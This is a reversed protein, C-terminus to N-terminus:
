FFTDCNSNLILRILTSLGKIYMGALGKLFFSYNIESFLQSLPRVTMVFLRKFAEVFKFIHTHQQLVMVVSKNIFEHFNNVIDHESLLM